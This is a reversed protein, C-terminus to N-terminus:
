LLFLRLFPLVILFLLCVLFSVPRLPNILLDLRYLTTPFFNCQFLHEVTHEAADCKPCSSPDSQDVVVRYSRLCRCFGSRLQSLTSRWHRPLDTVSSDVPPPRAGLVRNPKADMGIIAEAVAATHLDVKVTGLSDPPIVGNRLFLAVSAQHKSALTQRM